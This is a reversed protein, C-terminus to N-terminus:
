SSFSEGCGCTHKANPNKFFFGKGKLGGSYELKIGDLYMFDSKDILVKIKGDEFVKDNNKITKDFSLDYSLGSCGGSKVGLRVFSNNPSLGEEKMLDVLKKQAIDSINVM